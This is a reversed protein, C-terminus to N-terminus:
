SALDLAAEDLAHAPQRRLFQPPIGLAPHARMRRRGVLDRECGVARLNEVHRQGVPRLGILRGDMAGLRDALWRQVARCTSTSCARQRVRDGADGVVLDAGAKISRRRWLPHQHRDLPQLFLPSPPCRFRCVTCNPGFFGINGSQSHSIHVRFTCLRFAKRPQAAGAPSARTSTAPVLPEVGRSFPAKM